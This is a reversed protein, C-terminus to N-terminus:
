AGLRRTIIEGDTIVVGDIYSVTITKDGEVEVAAIIPHKSPQIVTMKTSNKNLFAFAMAVAISGSGCATEYYMSSEVGTVLVCPHMLLGNPTEELFMVGCAPNHALSYKDMLGKAILKLEDCFSDAMRAVSLYQESKDAPVILHVIGELPVLFFGDDTSSVSSLESGVPMTAWATGARNVGAKLPRSVGSVHIDIEGITNRLFFSAACRTANGCFEGGAMELYYEGDKEGLFGVQEVVEYRTRIEYDIKRRMPKDFDLGFVLATDNGGPSFIQFQYQQM